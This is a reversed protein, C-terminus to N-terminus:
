SYDRLATCTSRGKLDGHLENVLAEADDRAEYEEQDQQDRVGDTGPALQVDLNLILGADLTDLLDEDREILGLGEDLVGFSALAPVEIAAIWLIEVGVMLGQSLEIGLKAEKLLHEFIGGLLSFYRLKAGEGLGLQSLEGLGAAEVM